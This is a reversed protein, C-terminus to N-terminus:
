GRAGMFVRRIQPAPTVPLTPSVPTSDAAQKKVDAYADAECADLRKQPITKPPQSAPAISDATAAGTEKAVIARHLASTLLIQRDVDLDILRAIRQSLEDVALDQAPPQFEAKVVNAVFTGAIALILSLCLRNSKGPINKMPYKILNL